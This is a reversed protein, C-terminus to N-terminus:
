EVTVKAWIYKVASEVSFFDEVESNMVWVLRQSLKNLVTWYDIKGFWSTNGLFYDYWYLGTLLLMTENKCCDAWICISTTVDSFTVDSFLMLALFSFFM